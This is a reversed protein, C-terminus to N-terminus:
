TFPLLLRKAKQDVLQMYISNCYSIVCRFNSRFGSGSQFVHIFYSPLQYYRITIKHCRSHICCEYQFHPKGFRTERRRYIVIKVPERTSGNRTRVINYQIGNTLISNIYWGTRAKSRVICYETSRLPLIKSQSVGCSQVSLQGFEIRILVIPVVHRM